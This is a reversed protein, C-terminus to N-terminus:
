RQGKNNKIMISNVCRSFHCPNTRFISQYQAADAERYFAWQRAGGEHGCTSRVWWAFSNDRPLSPDLPWHDRPMPRKLWIVDPQSSPTGKILWTRTVPLARGESPLTPSQRAENAERRKRDRETM